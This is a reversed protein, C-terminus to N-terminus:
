LKDILVVAEAASRVDEAVEAGGDVHEDRYWHAINERLHQM